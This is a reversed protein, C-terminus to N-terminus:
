EETKTESEAPAASVAVAENEAIFQKAEALKEDTTKANGTMLAEAEEKSLKACFVKKLVIVSIEAVIMIIIGVLAANLYGEQKSSLEIFSYDGTASKASEAISEYGHKAGAIYTPIIFTALALIATVVDNDKLKSPLLAGILGRKKERKVACSLRRAARDLYVTCSLMIALYVIILLGDILYGNAVEVGKDRAATAATFYAGYKGSVFAKFIGTRIINLFFVLFGVISAIAPLQLVNLYKFQEIPYERARSAAFNLVTSIVAIICIAVIGSGYTMGPIVCQFLMLILPLSIMGPLKKALSPAAEEPTQINKLAKILSTLAIIGFIFPLILTLILVAILGILSVVINLVFSIINDSNKFDVTKTVAIALAVATAVAEKGKKSDLYDAIKEAAKAQDEGKATAAQIIKVILSISGIMKPSSVPIEDQLIMKKIEEVDGPLDIDSMMKDVTGSEFGKLTIIPTLSFVFALVILLLSAWLQVTSVHKRPLNFQLM